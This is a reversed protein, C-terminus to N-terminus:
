YKDPVIATTERLVLEYPFITETPITGDQTIKRYLLEAAKQGM